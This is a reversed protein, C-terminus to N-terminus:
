ESLAEPTRVEQAEWEHAGLTGAETGQRCTCYPKEKVSVVDQTERRAGVCPTAFELRIRRERRWVLAGRPRRRCSPPTRPGSDAWRVRHRCRLNSPLDQGDTDRNRQCIGSSALPTHRHDRCDAADPGAPQPMSGSERRSGLSGDSDSSETRVGRPPLPEQRNDSPRRRHEPGSPTPRECVPAPLAAPTM